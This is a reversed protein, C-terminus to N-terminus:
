NGCVKDAEAERRSGGPILNGSPLLHILTGFPVGSLRGLGTVKVESVSIKLGPLHSSSGPYFGPHFSPRPSPPCRGLPVLSMESRPDQLWGFRRGGM